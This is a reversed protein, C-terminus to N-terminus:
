RSADGFDAHGGFASIMTDFHIVPVDAFGQMGLYASHLCHLLDLRCHVSATSGLLGHRKLM